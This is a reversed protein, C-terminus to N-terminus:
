SPLMERPSCLAEVLEQRLQAAAHAAGADSLHPMVSQLEELLRRMRARTVEDM